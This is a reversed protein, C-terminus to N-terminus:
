NPEPAGNDIRWTTLVDPNIITEGTARLKYEGPNAPLVVSTSPPIVFTKGQWFGECAVSIGDKRDAAVIRGHYQESREAGAETFSVGVLAYKGILWEAKAEDWEYIDPGADNASATM